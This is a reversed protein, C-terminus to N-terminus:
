KLIGVEKLKEIKENSLKGEVYQKISKQRWHQLSKREGKRWEELNNDWKSNNKPKAQFPFKIENLMDVKEQQMKGQKYQKRNYAIWTNVTNTRLGKKYTELNKLWADGIALKSTQISKSEGKRLDESNNERKSNSKPKAQFPFNIENLKDVKDQKMKGQKYQRRNYAIWTNIANSRLGKQYSELNRFWADGKPLKSTQPLEPKPEPKQEPKQPEIRPKRGRKIQPKQELMPEDLQEIQPAPTPVFLSKPKPDAKVSHWKETIEQQSRQLVKSLDEITLVSYFKKLYDVEFVEWERYNKPKEVEVDRELEFEFQTISFKCNKKEMREVSIRYCPSISHEFVANVTGYLWWDGGDYKVKEGIQYKM